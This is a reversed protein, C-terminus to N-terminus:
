ERSRDAIYYLSFPQNVFGFLFKFPSLLWPVLTLELVGLGGTFFEWRVILVLSSYELVPIFYIRSRLMFELVLLIM